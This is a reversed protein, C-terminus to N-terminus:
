DLDSFVHSGVTIGKVGLFCVHEMVWDIARNFLAPALAFGQHTGSSMVFCESMISGIRVRSGTSAHLDWVLHM